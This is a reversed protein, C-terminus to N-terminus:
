GAVLRGREERKALHEVSLEVADDRRADREVLLLLELRHGLLLRGALPADAPSFSTPRPRARPRPAHRRLSAGHGRSKVKRNRGARERRSSLERSNLPPAAARARQRYQIM